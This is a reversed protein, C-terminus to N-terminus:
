EAAGFLKNSCVTVWCDASAPPTVQRLIISQIGYLLLLPLLSLAPGPSCGSRHNLSIVTVVGSSKCLEWIYLLLLPTSATGM